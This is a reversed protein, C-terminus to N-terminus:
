RRGSESRAALTWRRHIAVFRIAQEALNNTPDIAPDAIFRLYSDCHLYFREAESESTGPSVSDLV